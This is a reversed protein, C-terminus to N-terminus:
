TAANKAEKGHSAVGKTSNGIQGFGRSEPLIPKPITELAV